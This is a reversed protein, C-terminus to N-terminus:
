EKNLKSRVAARLASRARHIKIRFNGASIDLAACIEEPELGEVEKLLLVERHAHPLKNIEDHVIRLLKKHELERAARGDWEICDDKWHGDSEKFYGNEPDDGVDVYKQMRRIEDISKNRVARFLWSKISCRGDFRDITRYVNILAEQVVDEASAHDGLMRRAYAVLNPGNHAFVDRWVESEGSKLAAIQDRVDATMDQHKEDVRM